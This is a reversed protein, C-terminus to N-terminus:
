TQSEMTKLYTALKCGKSHPIAGGVRWVHCASCLGQHELHRALKDALRIRARLHSNEIELKVLQSSTAKDRARKTHRKPPYESLRRLGYRYVGAIPKDDIGVVQGLCAVTQNYPMLSHRLDSIRATLNRSKSKIALLTSTSDGEILTEYIIRNQGTLRERHNPPAHTPTFEASESEAYPPGHRGPLQGHHNSRHKHCHATNGYSHWHELAM